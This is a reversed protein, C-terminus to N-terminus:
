NIGFIDWLVKKDDSTIRNKNKANMSETTQAIVTKKKSKSDSMKIDKGILYYDILPIGNKELEDTITEYKFYESTQYGVENKAINRSDTAINKLVKVKESPELSKYYKDDLLADYTNYMYQGYIKKYKTYDKSSLDVEEGDYTFYNKPITPKISTDDAAEVLSMIEKDVRTTQDKTVTGPNILADFARVAVNSDRKKENGWVDTKPELLFSGGPIKNIQQRAFSEGEKWPSDKTATTSRETDDIIKNIQGGITPVFQGFYSKAANKGFAGIADVPSDSNSYSRISSNLGSVFSMESLPNVTSALTEAIDGFTVEKGDTAEVLEAGMLLPMASPAFWSIDYNKDGVRVSYSKTQGIQEAYEDDKDTGARLIGLKALLTGLGFMASGTLGQALRDIYQNGTIQGNKLKYTQTTLTDLLGLPSYAAGTKAINIPTKKFPIVGGAFLKTYGNINEFRSIATAAKSMQHFTTKWAEEKAFNIGKQVIEPNMDIDHQTKIGNATLYEQLNAKYAAQTFVNDELSLMNSNLRRLKEIAENKFVKRMEKLRAEITKNDNGALINALDKTSQEAFKKVDDTAKKFTRTREDLLPNALTEIARQIQNKAGYLGKMGVNAVTNRVHTRPNALMALYRWEAIKDPLSVEMQDAINQLVADVSNQLEVENQSKLINGALNEDIKINKAKKKETRKENKTDIKDNLRDVVKNLYMLQGEPTMRSIMSLAQIVQGYDKGLIATDAILEQAQKINGKKIAEQILREGLAIDTPTIRENFRVKNDLYTKADDYGMKELQKNAHDLQQRNSSPVYAIKQEEVNERVLENSQATKTWKVTKPKPQTPEGMSGYTEDKYDEVEQKINEFQRYTNLNDFKSLIQEKFNDDLTTDQNLTNIYDNVEKQEEESLSFLTGDDEEAIMRDARQKEYEAPDIFDKGALFNLYNENPEYTAGFSDTYGQRLRNDLVMEIRKAAAINEAGNDKIIAELGKRIDEYSLKVGNNGDLLDIIDKTAERTVGTYILEGNKDWSAFREGKIVNNLDRLMNEAEHQFFPKVEPNDYQYANIKRNGVEKFDRMDELGKNTSMKTLPENEITKTEQQQLQENSPLMTTDTKTFNTKTGTNWKGYTDDLFQQWSPNQKQYRIDENETPNLNDISKIQNPEFAVYLSGYKKAKIIVGDNGNKNAKELIKEYNEDWYGISDYDINVIYPNTLNLYTKMVKGPTKRPMGYNTTDAYSKAQNIDDTFFFGQEDQLYNSGIMEKEFKTFEEGTGHYVEILNGSEDRAKSDRFYSQQGESLQRGQNDQTPTEESLSYRIDPNTTPTTNDVNKIQNSNFAVIQSSDQATKGDIIGDYGQETLTERLTKYGEQKAYTYIRDPLGQEAIDGYKEYLASDIQSDTAGENSMKNVTDAIDQWTYKSGFKIPIKGWENNMNVLNTIVTYDSYSETGNPLYYLSDYSFPNQINLYTEKVNKGYDKARDKSYTFYFGDGFNGANKTNNGIKGLDFTYFDGNTGHYMTLLKGDVDKIKSDRFYTQQGKSLKRGQNDQTPAESLSYQTNDRGLAKDWFGKATSMEKNTDLELGARKAYEKLANVVKTGTGQNQKEVYLEDIWLKGNEVTTTLKVLNDDIMTTLVKTSSNRPLDDYDSRHKNQFFDVYRSANDKTLEWEPFMQILAENVHNGGDTYDIDNPLQIESLSQQTGEQQTGSFAKQYANRFGQEYKNLLRRENFSLRGNTNDILVNKIWNWVKQFLNPQEQALSDLFEQNGLVEGLIDNTMEDNIDYNGEGLKSRYTNDLAKMGETFGQQKGAYDLVAKQLKNYDELNGAKIDHGLEHAITFEIARTSNPNLYVIRNKADYVGNGDITNDFEIRVGRVDQIAQLTNATETPINYGLKNLEAVKNIISNEAATQQTNLTERRIREAPTETTNEVNNQTIQTPNQSATVNSNQPITTDITNSKQSAVNDIEAKRQEVQKLLDKKGNEIKNILESKQVDTLQSQNIKNTAKNAYTNIGQIVNSSGTLILTPLISGTFNDWIEQEDFNAPHNYITADALENLMYSAVEEGGEGAVDFLVKAAGRLYKNGIMSTYQSPSILSARGLANDVTSGFMMETAVEAGGSAIKSLQAQAPTAGEALKQNYAQNGASEYMSYFGLGPNLATLLYNPVQASVVNLADLGVKGWGEPKYRRNFDETRRQLMEEQAKRMDTFVGEDYDPNQGIYETELPTFGLANLVAQNVVDKNPNATRATGELFNAMANKVNSGMIGLQDMVPNPNLERYAEINAYTDYDSKLLRPYAEDEPFQEKNRVDRAVKEQANYLDDVSHNEVKLNDKLDEAVMDKLQGYYMKESPTVANEELSKIALYDSGKAEGYPIAYSRGAIATPSNLLSKKDNDIQQNVISEITATRQKERQNNRHVQQSVGAHNPVQKPQPTVEARIREAPTMNTNETPKAKLSARIEEAKTM